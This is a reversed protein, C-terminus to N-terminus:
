SVQALQKDTFVVRRDLNYKVLYGIGLGLVAGLERMADTQWVLWFLTEMGWFIPTTILGMITYLPLRKSHAKIGVSLDGFIWRKDLIYKVVLGITTGAGVALAFLTSSDGLWLVGRQTALNALTALVAFFAYRYALAQLTM